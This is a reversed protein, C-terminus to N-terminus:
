VKGDSGDSSYFSMSLVKVTDDGIPVENNKTTLYEDAATLLDAQERPTIVGNTDM